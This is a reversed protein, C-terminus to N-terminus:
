TPVLVLATPTPATADAREVIPLGFAFTKGSGTPAKALVDAGTLADPIVLEPHSLSHQHRPCGTGARRRRESRARFSKQSM